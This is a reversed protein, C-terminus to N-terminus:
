AGRAREAHPGNAHARVVRDAIIGIMEDAARDLDSGEIVNVRQSRALNVVHDQMWRIEELHDIYGAMPRRSNTERERLYFHKRHADPDGISVVFTVATAGKYLDTSLFGPVVHVGEVVISTHEEVARKIIARVGVSVQQVQDTFGRVVLDPTARPTRRREYPALTAEWADYTSAHLSPSLDAPVLARMVQRVSDTSVIRTIGLRYAVETALASKGVGTVGGILIAIPKLPRRVSRMVLYRRAVEDGVERRLVEAVLARLDDKTIVTQRESWLHQELERALSHAQIPSLGLAMLSQALIGKSYPFSVRGSNDDTVIVETITELRYEYRERAEPGLIREVSAGVYGALEEAPVVRRGAVRLDHEVEKAIAYADGLTIGSEELSRTLVGKSFPFTGGGEQIEVDEFAPTQALFRRSAEEGQEATLRSAIIESLEAPTIELCGDDILQQEIRRALIAAADADVGATVLSEAVLGRSFPWRAGAKILAVVPQTV